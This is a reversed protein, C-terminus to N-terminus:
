DWISIRRQVAKSRTTSSNISESRQSRSVSSLRHTDSQKALKELFVQMKVPGRLRLKLLYVRLCVTFLKSKAQIEM